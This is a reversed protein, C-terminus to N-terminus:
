DDNQENEKQSCTEEEKEEEVNLLKEYDEQLKLIANLLELKKKDKEKATM